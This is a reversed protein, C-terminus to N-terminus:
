ATWGNRVYRTNPHPLQGAKETELWKKDRLHAHKQGVPSGWFSQSIKNNTASHRQQSYHEVNQLSIRSKTGPPTRSQKPRRKNGVHNLFSLHSHSGRIAAVGGSSVPQSHARRQAAPPRIPSSFGSVDLPNVGREYMKRRTQQISGALAENGGTKGLEAFGKVEKAIKEKIFAEQEADTFDGPDQAYDFKFQKKRLRKYEELLDQDLQPRTM